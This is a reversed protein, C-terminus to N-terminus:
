LLQSTFSHRAVMLRTCVWVCSTSSRTRSPFRCKEPPARHPQRASLNLNKSDLSQNRTQPNLTMPFHFYLPRVDEVSFRESSQPKQPQQDPAITGCVCQFFSRHLDALKLWQTGVFPLRHGEFPNVASARNCRRSQCSNGLEFTACTKNIGRAM